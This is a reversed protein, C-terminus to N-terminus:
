KKASGTIVRKPPFPVLPVTARRLFLLAFCTRSLRSLGKADPWTGQDEQVELLHAAGEEWWDHSGFRYTGALTGARMVSYLYYYKWGGSGPNSEPQFHEALWACGDRIATETAEQRPRWSRPYRELESKAICLAIVGSSTMSGTSKLTTESRQPAAGVRSAPRDSLERKLYSWGRAAFLRSEATEGGGGGKRERTAAEKREQEKHKELLKDRKKLPVMDYIPGDAAPIPFPSVQPGQPDQQAVFFDVVGEFVEPKVKIGLRSAAKLALMAYQTCSNDHDESGKPSPYRWGTKAEARNNLLYNVCEQLKALDAKRAKKGFYRRATSAYGRKHEKQKVEAPPAFRAEIALALMSVSYVRRLPLQYLHAFARGIGPDDPPTGCKLLTLTALATYGMPFGKELTDAQGPPLKFSGEAQQLDALWKLGKGLAAELEARQVDASAPLAAALILALPALLRTM